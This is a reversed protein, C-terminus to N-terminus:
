HSLIKIMKICSQGDSYYDTIKKTVTYGALKYLAIAISNSEAVELGMRDMGRDVAYMEASGLLHKSYGRGRHEESVTISYLRAYTSGKRFRVITYGIVEDNKELVHTSRNVIFFRLSKRSFAEVGFTNELKVISELDELTAERIM